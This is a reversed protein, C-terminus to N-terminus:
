WGSGSVKGTMFSFHGLRAIYNNELVVPIEYWANPKCVIYTNVIFSYLAFYCM